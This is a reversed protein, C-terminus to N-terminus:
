LYLNSGNYKSVKANFGYIVDNNVFVVVDNNVANWDQTTLFM